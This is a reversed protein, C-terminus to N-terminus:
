GCHCDLWLGGFSLRQTDHFGGEDMIISFIGILWRLARNEGKLFGHHRTALSLEFAFEDAVTMGQDDVLVSFINSSSLVVLLHYGPKM